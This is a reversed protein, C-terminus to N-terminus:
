ISFNSNPLAFFILSITGSSTSSSASSYFSNINKIIALPALFSTFVQKM